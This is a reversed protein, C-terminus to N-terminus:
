SRKKNDYCASTAIHRHRRTCATEPLRKHKGPGATAEFSQDTRPCLKQTRSKTPFFTRPTFSPSLKSLSEIITVATNVGSPSIAGREKERASTACSPHTRAMVPLSTNRKVPKFHVSIGHPSKDSTEVGGVGGIRIRQHLKWQM